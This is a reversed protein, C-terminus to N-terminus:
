QHIMLDYMSNLQENSVENGKGYDKVQTPFQNYLHHFGKLGVLDDVRLTTRRKKKVKIEEDMPTPEDPKEESQTKNKRSTGDQEWSRAGEM